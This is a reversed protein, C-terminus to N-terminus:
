IKMSIKGMHAIVFSRPRNRVIGPSGVAWVSPGARALPLSGPKESPIVASSISAPNPHLFTGSVVYNPTLVPNGLRM